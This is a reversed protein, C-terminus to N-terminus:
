FEECFHLSAFTGRSQNCDECVNSTLSFGIEECFHLLLRTPLGVNLDECFSSTLSFRLEKCFNFSLSFLSCCLSSQQGFEQCDTIIAAWDRSFWHRKSGLILSRFYNSYHSCTVIAAWIGLICSAWWWFIRFKEKGVSFLLRFEWRTRGGRQTGHKMGPRQWVESECYTLDWEFEGKM